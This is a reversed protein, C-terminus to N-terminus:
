FEVLCMICVCNAVQLRLSYGASVDDAVSIELTMIEKGRNRYGKM